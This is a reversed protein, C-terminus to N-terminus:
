RVPRLLAAVTEEDLFSNDSPLGELLNDVMAQKQRQLSLIKEEVTDKAVLRYHFVPKDQGIRYARDAAQQEVAPNWWPDYQIVTDAATLNLGAGGAKLSILFIPAAGSQFADVVRGRDSTEGTLELFKWKRRDLEAAILRLMTVFQSFILVTRNEDLLGELMEILYSLKASDNMALDEAVGPCLRPDCCVQRLKLLADLIEIRMSDAGRKELEAALGEHLRLRISEYIEAQRPKLPIMRTIETRPPLERAVEDKKRRLVFPRIRSALLQAAERAVAANGEKIPKQFTESFSKRDGLCGPMLFRFLSWLEGFHNEVPTGTLCLRRRSPLTCLSRATDSRPNKIRQAEDLVILSWTTKRLRDSEIRAINYSTVVVDPVASAVPPWERDTGHFRLMTLNPTFRERENEWSDLVSTPAVILCPENLRGNEKERLLHVLVQVTKGLGMDDALIGGLEFRRLFDLWALGERQYERLTVPLAPLDDLPKLHIGNGSERKLRRLRNVLDDDNVRVLNADALEAVRWASVRLKGDSKQVFRLEFLLQLLATLREGPLLLFKGDDLAVSLSTRRCEEILAEGTLNPRARLFATLVPLAPIRKGNYEMGAEFAFWDRNSRMIDSFWEAKSPLVIDFGREFEIRWKRERKLKPFEDRLLTSWSFPAKVSLTFDGTHFALFGDAVPSPGSEFGLARLTAVAEAEAGTDRLCQRVRGDEEFAIREVDANWDIERPGYAFRLQVSAIENLSCAQGKATLGGAHRNFIRLCVRPAICEHKAASDEGPLPIPESPFRNMLRLCFHRAGQDDMPVARLWSAALAPSLPSSVIGAANAERDLYCPPEAAVVAIGAGSIALTPKWKGCATREWLPTGQREDGWQLRLKNGDRLFSRGTGVIERLLEFADPGDIMAVPEGPSEGYQLRRLIRRDVDRPYAAFKARTLDSIREIPAPQFARWNMLRTLRFECRLRNRGDSDLLYILREPRSSEM